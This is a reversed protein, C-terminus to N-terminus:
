QSFARNDIDPQFIDVAAVVKLIDEAMDVISEECGGTTSAGRRPGGTKGCERKRRRAPLHITFFPPTIGGGKM